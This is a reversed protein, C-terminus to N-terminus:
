LAPLRTLTVKECLSLNQLILTCHAAGATPQWEMIINSSTDKQSGSYITQKIGAAVVRLHDTNERTISKKTSEVVCPATTSAHEIWM